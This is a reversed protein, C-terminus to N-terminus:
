EETQESGGSCDRDPPQALARELHREARGMCRSVNSIHRGTRRAIERQSLGEGYYWWLYRRQQATLREMPRPVPKRAAQRELLARARRRWEPTRRYKPETCTNM